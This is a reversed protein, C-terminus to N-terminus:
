SRKAKLFRIKSYTTNDEIRNGETCICIKQWKGKVLEFLEREDQRLKEEDIGGQRRVEKKIDWYWSLGGDDLEVGRIGM